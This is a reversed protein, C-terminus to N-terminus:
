DHSIHPSTQITIKRIQSSDAFSSIQDPDFTILFSNQNDTYETSGDSIDTLLEIDTFANSMSTVTASDAFYFRFSSSTIYSGSSSTESQTLADAGSDTWVQINFDEGVCNADVNEFLISDLVWKGPGNAQNIYGAYPTITIGNDATDCATAGMAIMGQGFELQAGDSGGLTINAGYAIGLVTMFMAAARIVFPRSSSEENTSENELDDLDFSEDFDDSEYRKLINM